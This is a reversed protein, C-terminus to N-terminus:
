VREGGLGAGGRVTVPRPRTGSERTPRSRVKAHECTARTVRGQAGSGAAEGVAVWRSSSDRVLGYAKNVLGESIPLHYDAISVPNGAFAFEQHKLIFTGRVESGNEVAVFYEQFIKRGEIKPLWKPVSREPFQYVVGGAKLRQNFARVAPVLDEPYPKIEIAM